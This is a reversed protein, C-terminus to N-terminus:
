LKTPPTAEKDYIRKLLVRWQRFQEKADGRLEVTEEELQIVQPAVEVDISDGLEALAAAHVKSEARSEFSEAILLAGTTAAAIGATSAGVDNQNQMAAAAGGIVLVAGGVGQWFARRKAKRMAKAEPLAYKQWAAYSEDTRRVFAEYHIQMQEMFMHDLVQLARSRKFMPDDRAPMGSVTFRGNTEQIYEAFFDRSFTKAFRLATANRITALEKATHAELREVIDEAAMEFVPRYPDKGRNRIDRHFQEKVRHKYTAKVWQKGTSDIVEVRIEADEGNSKLIRGVLYLDASVNTDPTVRVDGFSGTAQLARKMEFAFRNAETRRLEPWIGKKEYDDADEPLGPDFVPVVVDPRDGVYVAPREASPSDLKLGTSIRSTQGSTSCGSLVAAFVGVLACTLLKKM